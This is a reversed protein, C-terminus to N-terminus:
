EKGCKRFDTGQGRAVCLTSTQGPRAQGPRARMFRVAVVRGYCEIIQNTVKQFSMIEFM